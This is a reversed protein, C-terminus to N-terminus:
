GCATPASIGCPPGGIGGRFQGQLLVLALKRRFLLIDTSAAM